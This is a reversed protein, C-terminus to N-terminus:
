EVSLLKIKTTRGPFANIHVINDDIGIINSNEEDEIIYEDPINVIISLPQNFTDFKMKENDLTMQVILYDDKIYAIVDCNQKERLYKVAEDFTAVWILNEDSKSKIYDLHLCADAVTITQYNGDDEPMVNHWMEILWKKQHIASDVWKNKQPVTTATKDQIGRVKLNFWEGVNTGEAPSLNNLGRSGRRVAWFDNDYLVKYGNECMVNEPCVFVIQEGGFNDEYFTDAGAIEYKLREMDDAFECDVGMPIHNMSHSVVEVNGQALLKKWDDIRTNVNWVPAAITCRLGREGFIQNLNAATEFYGDDSCVTVIADAGGYVDDIKAEVLKLIEDSEKTKDVAECVCWSVIMIVIIASTIVAKRLKNRLM